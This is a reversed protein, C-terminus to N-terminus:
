LVILLSILYSLFYSKLSFDISENLLKGVFRVVANKKMTFILWNIEIKNNILCFIIFIIYGASHKFTDAKLLYNVSNPKFSLQCFFFLYKIKKIYFIYM